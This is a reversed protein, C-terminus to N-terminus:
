GEEYLEVLKNIAKYFGYGYDLHGQWVEIVKMCDYALSKKILSKNKTEGEGIDLGEGDIGSADAIHIHKIKDNLENLILDDANNYYNNGLILHCIDMCISLDHQKIYSIDDPHNMVHLNVSGGFYWAIPPLWQPMIEVTDGSLTRILQKYSEYYDQRNSHVVSFSGVIPVCQKSIEQLRSAFNVVKELLILSEKKQIPDSSFPDILQTSSIYDPLHVSYKTNGILNKKSVSADAEKYSLHFEYSNIPFSKRMVEYDHLRVPITLGLTRAVDIAHDSLTNAKKFLGPSLIQNQTVSKMLPKDIYKHINSKNLGICPSRYLLDDFTIKDGIRFDKKSYFSKGLNQRNLLEGQNTVRPMNGKSINDIANSFQVLKAFQQPNSSSSHDLGDASCDHTIHREIVSAGLQIALLCVEWNSDHSSYGVDTGWKNKLYKLYGLSPNDLAVPYNSVCHMPTWGKKPLSSLISDIETENHAGLSIYLHKKFNLLAHILELNMLEASPIKFFDFDEINEEFDCIDDIQFFSIGVSLSLSKAYRILDKIQVPSLYNRNIEDSLIEDGIENASTNYANSLNRYQFKVCDAGTQSALFILDKAKSYLGDHNIGIEAIFKIKKTPTKM